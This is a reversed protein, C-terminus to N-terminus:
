DTVASNVARSIDARCFLMWTAVFILREFPKTMNKSLRLIHCNKIAFAFTLKIEITVLIKNMFIINESNINFSKHM